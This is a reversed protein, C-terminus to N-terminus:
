PTEDIEILTLADPDIDETESFRATVVLKGNCHCCEYGLKDVALNGLLTMDRDCCEPVPSISWFFREKM